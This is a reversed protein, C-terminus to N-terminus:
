KDYLRFRTEDVAILRGRRDVISRRSGLPKIQRTQNARAQSELFAGRYLQLWGMRGILALLTLFILSSTLRLRYSPIPQLPIFRLRKRKKLIPKVRKHHRM